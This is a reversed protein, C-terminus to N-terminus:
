VGEFRMLYMKTGIQIAHGFTNPRRDILWLYMGMGGKILLVTNLSGIMLEHATQFVMRIPMVPRMGKM